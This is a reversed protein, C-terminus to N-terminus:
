LFHSRENECNKESNHGDFSAIWSENLPKDPRQQRYEDNRRQHAHHSIESEPPVVLAYPYNATARHNDRHNGCEDTQVIARKPM